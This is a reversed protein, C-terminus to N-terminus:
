AEGGEEIQSALKDMSLHTQNPDDVTFSGPVNTKSGYSLKTKVIRASANIRVGFSLSIIADPKTLDKKCDEEKESIVREIDAMKSKIAIALEAAARDAAVSLFSKDKTTETKITKIM